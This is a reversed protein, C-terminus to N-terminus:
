RGGRNFYDKDREKNEVKIQEFYNQDLDSYIFHFLVDLAKNRVEDSVRNKTNTIIYNYVDLLFEPDDLDLDYDKNLHLFYSYDIKKIIDLFYHLSNPLRKVKDLFEEASNVNFISVDTEYFRVNELSTEYPTMLSHNFYHHELSNDWTPDAIFIGDIGYKPDILRVLVRSHYAVNGLKIAIQKRNLQAQDALTVVEKEKYLDVDINFAYIGIQELLAVMLESFGECVMFNNFLTYELSRAAGINQNNELYEKFHTVIEYVALYREYPSLNSDVIDKVMLKLYSVLFIYKDLNMSQIIYIKEGQDMIKRFDEFYNSLARCDSINFIINKGKLANIVRIMNDYNQYEMYISVNSKIYKSLFGIEEDNLDMYFHFSDFSVLHSAQYQGIQVNKFFSLYEMERSSYKGSVDLTDIHFLSESANLLDFDERTLVYPDDNSGLTVSSIHTNDRIAELVEKTVLASSLIKFNSFSYHKIVDILEKKYENSLYLINENEDYFYNGDNSNVVCLKNQFHFDMITGGLSNYNYYFWLLFDILM